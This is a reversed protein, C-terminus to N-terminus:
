LFLSTIVERQCFIVIMWFVIFLFCQGPHPSCKHIKNPISMQVAVISFWICTRLFNLSSSGHSAAIIISLIKRTLCFWPDLIIHVGKYERCKTSLLCSMSAMLIDMLQCISSTKMYVCVCM